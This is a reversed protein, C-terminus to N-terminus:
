TSLLLHPLIYVRRCLSPSYILLKKEQSIREEPNSRLWCHYNRISTEPCGIPGMRVTWSVLVFGTGGISSVSKVTWVRGQIRATNPNSAKKQNRSGQLHSDRFTPLFHGNNAAYYGLLACNEAVERRFGSILCLLKETAFNYSCHKKTCYVFTRRFSFKLRM